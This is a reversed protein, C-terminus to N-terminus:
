TYTISKALDIDILYANGVFSPFVQKMNGERYLEDLVPQFKEHIPGWIPRNDWPIGKEKMLSKM